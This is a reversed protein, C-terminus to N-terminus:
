SKKIFDMGCKPCHISVKGRGRPIRIKQSCGPCKYIHYHRREQFRFKWKKFPESVRYSLRLFAQNEQYRRGINRSFMRFYLFVIGALELAELPWIRTFLNIVIVALVAYLLFQNLQDMGYRGIMFRQMKERFKGM